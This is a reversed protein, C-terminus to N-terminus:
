RNSEGEISRKLIGLSMFTTLSSTQGSSPSIDVLCCIAAPNWPLQLTEPYSLRYFSASNYELPQPNAEWHQCTQGQYLGEEWELNRAPSLFLVTCIISTGVLPYPDLDSWPQWFEVWGRELLSVPNQTNYQDSLLHARQGGVLFRILCCCVVETGDRKVM